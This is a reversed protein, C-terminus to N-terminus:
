CSKVDPKLDKGGNSLENRLAEWPHELIGVLNQFEATLCRRLFDLCRVTPQNLLPMGILKYAVGIFGFDCLFLDLLNIQGVVRDFRRLWVPTCGSHLRTM